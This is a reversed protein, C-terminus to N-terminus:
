SGVKRRQKSQKAPQPPVGAETGEAPKGVEVTQQREDIPNADSTQKSDALSRQAAMKAEFIDTFRVATQFTPNTQLTIKKANILPVGRALLKYLDMTEGLGSYM